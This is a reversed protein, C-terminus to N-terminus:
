DPDRREDVATQRRAQPAADPVGSGGRQRTRAPPAEAPPTRDSPPRGDHRDDHRDDHHDRRHDHRHHGGRPRPQSPGHVYRPYAYYWPYGYYVPQPVVVVYGANARAGSYDDQVYAAPVCGALGLLGVLGAMRGVGGAESTVRM